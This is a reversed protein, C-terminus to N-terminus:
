ESISVGVADREDIAAVKVGTNACSLMHDHYLIETM